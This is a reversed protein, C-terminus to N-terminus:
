LEEAPNFAVSAHSMYHKFNPPVSRTMNTTTHIVALIM